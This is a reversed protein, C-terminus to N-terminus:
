ENLVEKMVYTILIIEHKMTLIKLIMSIVNQNQISYVM